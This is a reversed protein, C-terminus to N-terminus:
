NQFLPNGQSDLEDKKEHFKGFQYSFTIGFSRFPVTLVNKQYFNSGSASTAFVVNKNFPNSASLGVSGKKQNFFKKVGISYETYSPRYGQLTYRPSNFVGFLEAVIKYPFEMTANVNINYRYTKVIAANPDLTNQLFDRSFNCNGRISLKQFLTIAGFVNAGFSTKTVINQRKSVAVNHLTDNGVVFEPYVTTYNQIDHTQHRCYISTTLVTGSKGTTSYSLEVRNQREPVLFPNGMNINNPDSTNIFPNMEDYEPRELRYSYNMKFTHFGIKKFIALSPIFSSYSNLFTSDSNALHSSNNTFEYRGGAVFHIKKIKFSFSSYAAGVQQKFIFTNSQSPDLLYDSSLTDFVHYAYDSNVDYISAKLGSELQFGNKFPLTYDTSFIYENEKGLLNGKENLLFDRPNENATSSFLSQDISFNNIDRDGTYEFSFEIEKGTTDFAHSYDTSVELSKEHTTGLTKRILQQDYSELPVNNEITVNGNNNNTLDEYGVSASVNDNDSLDWDMEVSPAFNSRGTITTGKTTLISSTDNVTTTRYNNNTGTQPLFYNGGVTGSIGFDDHYYSLTGNGKNMRTGGTASASGTLGELKSKKLVINIIGGTGQADYKASPSTMVEISKIQDASISQLVDVPNSGLLTSPKGNILIRVGGNGELEINGNIDVSVGPVKKLLDIATGGASTVDKDAHYVLKDPLNEIIDQASVIVAGSMMHPDPDLLLQGFSFHLNQATIEIKDNVFSFYGLLSIIIKYHGIPLNNLRFEGSDSTLTQTFPKTSDNRFVAVVAFEIPKHSISDIVQAYITGSDAPTVNQSFAISNIGFFFCILFFLKRSPILNM